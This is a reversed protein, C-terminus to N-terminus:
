HRRARRRSPFHPSAAAAQHFLGRLSLVADSPSAIGDIRAIETRAAREVSVGDPLGFLWTLFLDQPTKTQIDSNRDM